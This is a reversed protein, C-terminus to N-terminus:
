ERQKELGESPLGAFIACIIAVALVTAARFLNQRNSVIKGTYYTLRGLERPERFALWDETSDDRAVIHLSRGPVRVIGARWNDDIQINATVPAQQGTEINLLSLATTGRPNGAVEFLLYPLKPRVVESEVSGRSEPGSQSYSGWSKEYPRTGIGAPYGNAIFPNGSDGPIALPLAPRVIAPLIRRITPDDLLSALRNADPYPLDGALYKRDHTAVYGRVNEEMPLLVEKGPGSWVKQLGLTAAGGLSGAMWIAGFFLAATRPKGTWSMTRVLYLACLANAVAGLGLIDMYRSAIAINGNAGRSYAIAAAQAIVWLGIACLIEVCLRSRSANTTVMVFMCLAWPLYMVVMLIPTECYPWALSRAFVNLWAGASAAKLSEHPLYTVRFYLGIVIIALACLCTPVAETFSRRKGFLRMTQLIFVIGAAFFGSATSFCALVAGMAGLWWNWSYARFFGLGWIALFSFFLLFYFASQFGWLTNEYAYPLSLWLTVSALVPFRYDSGLIKLLGAAVV